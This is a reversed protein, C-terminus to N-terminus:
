FGPIMGITRRRYGRYDDGFHGEMMAEERRARKANV